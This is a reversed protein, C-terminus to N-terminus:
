AEATFTAVRKFEVLDGGLEQFIEAAAGDVTFYFLQWGRRAYDLLVEVAKQKRTQSSNLLPDDLVLFGPKEEWSKELLALRLSLLLQARAGDSM